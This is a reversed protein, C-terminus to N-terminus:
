KRQFIGLRPSDMMRGPSMGWNQTLKVTCLVRGWYLTHSQPHFAAATVGTGLCVDPQDWCRMLPWLSHGQPPLLHQRQSVNKKCASVITQSKLLQYFHMSSSHTPTQGLTNKRRKKHQMSSAQEAFKKKKIESYLIHFKKWKLIKFFFISIQPAAM